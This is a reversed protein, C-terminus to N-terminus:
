PMDVTALGELNSLKFIKNQSLDYWAQEQGSLSLLNYQNPVGRSDVEVAVLGSSLELFSYNSNRYWGFGRINEATKLVLEREGAKKLPQSETDKLWEIWFERGTHWGLMFNDPSVSFNKVGKVVLVLKNERDSLFSYLDTGILIFDSNNHRLADRIVGGTEFNGLIEENEGNLGIKLLRQPIGSMALIHDDKNIFFSTVNKSILKNKFERVSFVALDKSNSQKSSMSLFYLQGDKLVATELFHPKIPSLERFSNKALDFYIVKSQDYALAEKGNRGWIIKTQSADLPIAKSRYILHGNLDYFALTNKEWYVVEELERHLSLPNPRSIIEKELQSSSFLVIRSLDSVLGEKVEVEKEWPAFQEKQIKVSYTGPLLRKKSFTGKLFSTRGELKGDIFIQAETNPKLVISGTKVLRGNAFDYRFGFAFSLVGTSLLVFFVLAWVFLIRRQKKTV